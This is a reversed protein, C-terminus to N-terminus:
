AFAKDKPSFRALLEERTEETEASNTDREAQAYNSIASPSCGDATSPECSEGADGPDSQENMGNLHFKLSPDEEACRRCDRSLDPDWASWCDSIDDLPGSLLALTKGAWPDCHFLVDNSDFQLNHKSEASLSNFQQKLRGNEKCVKSAVAAKKKAYAAWAEASHGEYLSMSETSGIEPLQELVVKLAEVDYISLDGQASSLCAIVCSAM